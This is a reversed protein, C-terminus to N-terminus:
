KKGTTFLKLFWIKEYNQFMKEVNRVMKLVLLYIFFLIVMKSVLKNVLPQFHLFEFEILFYNQAKVSAFFSVNKAINWFHNWCDVSTAKLMPHFSSISFALSLVFSHIYWAHMVWDLVKLRHQFVFGVIKNLFCRLQYLTDYNTLLSNRHCGHWSIPRYTMM